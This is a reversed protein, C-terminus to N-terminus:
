SLGKVLKTENKNIYSIDIPTGQQAEKKCGTFSVASFLLICLWLAAHWVKKRKM